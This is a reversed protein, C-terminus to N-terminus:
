DAISLEHLYAGTSTSEGQRGAAPLVRVTTGIEKPAMPSPRATELLHLSACSRWWRSIPFQRRSETPTSAPFSRRDRLLSVALPTLVNAEGNAENVAMICSAKLAAICGAPLASSESPVPVDPDPDRAIAIPGFVYENPFLRITWNRGLVVNMMQIVDSVVIAKLIQYTERVRFVLTRVLVLVPSIMGGDGIVSQQIGISRKPQSEPPRRESAFACGRILRGCPPSIMTAETGNGTDAFERM